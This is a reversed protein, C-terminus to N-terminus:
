DTVEVMDESPIRKSIFEYLGYSSLSFILGSAASNVFFPIAETYCLAIGGITKPYMTSSMWVGLNSLIFFLTSGSISALGVTLPRIRNKLLKGILVIGSIAIATWIMYSSFWIVGETDPFYARFLFNNLIFDSLYLGILPLIFPLSRGILYSGGFLAISEMPTFNPYHPILRSIIAVSIISVALIKRKGM